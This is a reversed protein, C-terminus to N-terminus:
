GIREIEASSDAPLAPTDLREICRRLYTSTAPNGHIERRDTKTLFRLQSAATSRPTRPNLVLAKRVAYRYSWKKDAALLLLHEIPTRESSAVLVVDDERLRQNVLLAAFVRPDADFLFVKILAQSCRRASAVREGLTLKDVRLLLANDIARRVPAPVTVEISLRLLDPWYLFHVFKMAQAQPTARHAVLRMRVSYFSTLRHNQSLQQCIQPSCYPNELIALAEDEGMTRLNEAVFHRLDDRSFSKLDHLSPQM